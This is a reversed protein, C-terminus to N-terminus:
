PRFAVTYISNTIVRDSSTNFNELTIVGPFIRIRYADSLTAEPSGSNVSTLLRLIYANTLSMSYDPNGLNGFKLFFKASDAM